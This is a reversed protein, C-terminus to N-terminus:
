LFEGANIYDEGSKRDTGAIVRKQSYDGSLANTSHSTSESTQNTVQAKCM